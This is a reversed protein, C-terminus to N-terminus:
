LFYICIKSRFCKVFIEGGSDGFWGSNRPEREDGVCLVLSKEIDTADTADLRNCKEIDLCGQKVAWLIHPDRLPMFPDDGWGSLILSNGSPCDQNPYPLSALQVKENLIADNELFILGVDYPYQYM